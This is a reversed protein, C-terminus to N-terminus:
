KRPLLESPPNHRDAHIILGVAGNSCVWIPNLNAGDVWTSVTESLFSSYHM